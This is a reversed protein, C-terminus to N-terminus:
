EIRMSKEGPNKSFGIKVRYFIIFQLTIGIVILLGLELSSLLQNTELSKQAFLTRNKGESLQIESLEELDNKLAEFVPEYNSKNELNDKSYSAELKKLKEINKKLSEFQREEAATLKTTSFNAVLDDLSKGDSTVKLTSSQNSLKLEKEFVISNMQFIYNQAVVRDEYVTTLAEQATDFHKKDLLNTALILVFVVVLALALNFRQKFDKKGDNSM